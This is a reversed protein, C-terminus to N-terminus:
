WTIRNKRKKTHLLDIRLTASRWNRSQITKHLRRSSRPELAPVLKQAMNESCRIPSPVHSKDNAGLRQTM